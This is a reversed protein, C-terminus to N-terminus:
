INGSSLLRLLWGVLLLTASFRGRRLHNLLCLQLSIKPLALSPSCAYLFVGRRAEGAVFLNALKSLIDLVSTKAHFMRQSPYESFCCLKSLQQRSSIESSPEGSSHCPYAVGLADVLLNTVPKSALSLM